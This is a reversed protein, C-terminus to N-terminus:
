SKSLGAAALMADTSGASCCEAAVGDEDESFWRAGGGAVQFHVGCCIFGFEQQPQQPLDLSSSQGLDLGFVRWKIGVGGVDVRGFGGLLLGTWRRATFRRMGIKGTLELQASILCVSVWATFM